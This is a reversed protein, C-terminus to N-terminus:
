RWPLGSGWNQRTKLKGGLSVLNRSNELAATRRGVLVVESRCIEDGCDVALLSGVEVGEDPFDAFDRIIGIEAQFGDREIVDWPHSSHFLIIVINTNGKILSPKGM